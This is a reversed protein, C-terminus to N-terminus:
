RRKKKKITNTVQKNSLQLMNMLTNDGMYSGTRIDAVTSSKNKSILSEKDEPEILPLSSVSREDDEDEDLDSENEDEDKISITFTILVILSIEIFYYILELIRYNDKYAIIQASYYYGARFALFLEFVIFTIMIKCKIPEYIEPYNLRLNQTIKLRIFLYVIFLFIEMAM